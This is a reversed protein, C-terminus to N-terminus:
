QNQFASTTIICHFLSLRRVESPIACNSINRYKDVAVVAAFHCLAWPWMSNLKPELKEHENMDYRYLLETGRILATSQVPHRALVKSLLIFLDKTKRYWSCCSSVDLLVLSSRTGVAIGSNRSQLQGHCASPHSPSALTLGLFWISLHMKVCHSHTLM